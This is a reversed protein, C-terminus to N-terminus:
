FRSLGFPALLDPRTSTAWIASNEGVAPGQKFGRGSSGAAFLLGGVGPVQGIVPLDDPSMDYMCAYGPRLGLTAIKPCRPVMHEITWVSEDTSVRRQDWLDALRRFHGAVASQVSDGSLRPDVREETGIVGGDGAPKVQPLGRPLGRQNDANM